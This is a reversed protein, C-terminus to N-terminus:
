QNLINSPNEIKGAIYILMANVKELVMITTFNNDSLFSRWLKYPLIATPTNNICSKNAIQMSINRDLKVVFLPIDGLKRKVM